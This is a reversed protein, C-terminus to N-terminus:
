RKATIDAFIREIISDTGHIFEDFEQDVVVDPTISEKVDGLKEQLKPLNDFVLPYNLMLGTQRISFHEAETYNHIAGGTPMGYSTVDFENQLCDEYVQCGASATFIGLILYIKKDKLVDKYKYFQNQLMSRFGGQNFRVDIILNTLNEDKEFEEMMEEFFMNFSTKSEMCSLYQFYITNHEKLVRYSYNENNRMNETRMQQTFPMDEFKYPFYGDNAPEKTIPLEFTELGNEGEVTFPIGTADKDIIQLYKLMNPYMCYLNTKKGSMTEVPCVTALLDLVEDLPRNGIMTVKKGIYSELSKPLCLIYLDDGFWGVDLSYFGGYPENDENEYNLGVHCMETLAVIERLRFYATVDDSIVGASLDDCMAQCGKEIAEKPMGGEIGKNSVLLLEVQNVSETWKDVFAEQVNAMNTEANEIMAESDTLTTQKIETQDTLAKPEITKQEGCGFLLLGPLLCIGVMWVKKM